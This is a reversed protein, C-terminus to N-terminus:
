CGKFIMDFRLGNGEFASEYLLLRIPSINDSQRGVDTIFKELHIIKRGYKKRV